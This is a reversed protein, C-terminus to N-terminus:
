GAGWAAPPDTKLQRQCPQTTSSALAATALALALIGALGTAKTANAM